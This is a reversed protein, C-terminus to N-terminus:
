LRFLIFFFGILVNLLNYLYDNKKLTKLDNEEICVIEIGDFAFHQLNFTLATLTVNLFAFAFVM